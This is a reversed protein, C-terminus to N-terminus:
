LVNFEFTTSSYNYRVLHVQEPAYKLVSLDISWFFNEWDGNTVWLRNRYKDIRLVHIHCLKRSYTDQFYFWNNDSEAIGTKKRDLDLCKAFTEGYDFSVWVRSSTGNGNSSRNQELWYKPTGQGYESVVVINEKCDISWDSLWAGNTWRQVGEWEFNDYTLRFLQKVDKQNNSTKNVMWFVENNVKLQIPFIIEENDLVKLSIRDNNMNEFMDVWINPHLTPNSIIVVENNKEKYITKNHTHYFYKWGKKVDCLLGGKIESINVQKEEIQELTVEKSFYNNITTNNVDFGKNNVLFDGIHMSTKNSFASCLVNHLLNTKIIKQTTILEKSFVGKVSLGYYGKSWKKSSIRVYRANIPIDQESNIFEFQEEGNYITGDNNKLLAEIILMNEDAFFVNANKDLLANIVIKNSGIPLYYAIHPMVYNSNYRYIGNKDFFAGIGFGGTGVLPFSTEVCNTWDLIKQNSLYTEFNQYLNVEDIDLVYDITIDNTYRESTRVFTGSQLGKLTKYNPIQLRYMSYNNKNDETILDKNLDSIDLDVIFYQDNKLFRKIRLIKDINSNITLSKFAKVFCIISSGYNDNNTFNILLDTNNKLLSYNIIGSDNFKRPPIVDCYLRYKKNEFKSLDITWRIQNKHWKQGGCIVVVDNGNFTHTNTTIDLRIAGDNLDYAGEKPYLNARISIITNNPDTKDVNFQRIYIFNSILESYLEINLIANDFLWIMNSNEWEFRKSDIEIIPKIKPVFWKYNLTNKLPKSQGWYDLELKDFVEGGSVGRTDGEKVEGEFTIPVVLKRSDTGNYIISVNGSSYDEETVSIPQGNGDKFNLYIGPKTVKYEGRKTPAPSSPEIADIVGSELAKIQKGQHNFLEAFTNSVDQVQKETALKPNNSM